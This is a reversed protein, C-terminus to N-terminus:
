AHNRHAQLGHADPHGVMLNLCDFHKRAHKRSAVEIALPGHNAVM